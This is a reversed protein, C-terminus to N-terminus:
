GQDRSYLRWTLMLARDARARVQTKALPPAAHIARRIQLDGLLLSLYTDAITAADGGKLARDDLAKQCLAEIM